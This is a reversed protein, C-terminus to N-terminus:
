QGTSGKEAAVSPEYGHTPESTDMQLPANPQANASEPSVDALSSDGESPTARRRPASPAQVDRMADKVENDFGAMARRLDRMGKGLTKALDPLKSPGIFILAAVLIVAIEWTGLGFM